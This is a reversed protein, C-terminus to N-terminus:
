SPLPREGARGDAEGDSRFMVGIGWELVTAACLAPFWLRVAAFFTLGPIIPPTEAVTAYAIAVCELALLLVILLRRVVRGRRRQVARLRPLLVPQLMLLTGLLGILAAGLALALHTPPPEGATIASWTIVALLLQIGITPLSALLRVVWGGIQWAWFFALQPRRYRLLLRGFVRDLSSGRIEEEETAKAEDLQWRVVRGVQQRAATGEPLAMMALTDSKSGVPSCLYLPGPWTALRFYLMGRYDGVRQDFPIVAQQIALQYHTFAEQALEEATAAVFVLGAPDEHGGSLFIAPSTVHGEGEEYLPLVLTGRGEISFVLLPHPLWGRLANGPCEATPHWADDDILPHLGREFRPGKEGSRPEERVPKKGEQKPCGWAVGALNSATRRPGRVKGAQV